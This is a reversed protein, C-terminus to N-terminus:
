AIENLETQSPAFYHAGSAPRSFDTLRDHLGDSTLGFMRALMTEYRSRQGSFALFYLGHEAVTGYPASRRYIELEVGDITTQVRSIHASRPKLEESLEISDPKSRGIVREQEEVDLREFADLDHVWRMALVHSGAAGPRGPPVLAVEAARTQDPNATGDIFGTIDRGGLYTYGQCEHALQAVERVALTAARASQWTVDPSAGSVWLWADHKAAPVRRDGAGRVEAFDVLEEPAHSGALVRWMDAGFALVINVGGSSVSPGRLRTFAQVADRPAVGDRLDLELFHHAHTGQAFIGFQPVHAARSDTNM